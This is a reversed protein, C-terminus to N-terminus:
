GGAASRGVGRPAPGASRAESILLAKRTATTVPRTVLEARSLWEFGAPARRLSAEVVACRYLHNTIAHRFEGLIAGPTAGPLDDGDPLEWFGALKCADSPRKRVLIKGRREILLYTKEIKRPPTRGLKVPLQREVGRRRGECDSAIPCEGCRPQKPACVTAGLEMMAQNFPGPHRRDLLRQAIAALRRRTAGSRIDGADNAMRSLVRLVNGDLVAYPQGFCISAIAAATYDGIGELARIAAYDTPFAGAAVIRRAAKQMNRARFYYGLGSWSELLSEEPAAALAEVDPFRRLFREYYPIVAAVRTQQLMIESVWIRYPDKTMRWPLPRRAREYWALLRGRVQRERNGTGHETEAERGAGAQKYQPHERRLQQQTCSDM